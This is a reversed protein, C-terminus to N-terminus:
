SSAASGVRHTWRAILVSKIADNVGLTCAASYAIISSLWGLPIPGLEALGFVGILFGVCADAALAVVLITGPRSWWFARRERVSLISFLAFYLLLEFSFMQLRGADNAFDFRSWVFALLGLSEILMLAGTVAGVTVLPAINWTEPKSSPRVRDTSLSIKVFDTMFVLLIMALASIVFKGSALFAAVVFGAKLVTRSIKNVIWTLVRQYTARGDRVLDVIGELGETTLVVSAAGKAVDTSGSVAIGVEAQRLAPADNVGDGTMGAVHGADQLTKVILFKDEPFVEAFGASAM